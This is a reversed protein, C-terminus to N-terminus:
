GLSRHPQIVGPWNKGAREFLTGIVAEADASTWRSPSAMFSVSWKKRGFISLRHQLEKIPVATELSLAIVVKVDVRCPFLDNRWIIRSHDQYPKSQIELIGIWTSVRALYCLILDGPRFQQILKWRFPRFGTVTSGANIFELWTEPTFVQV